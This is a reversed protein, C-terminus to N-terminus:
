SFVGELRQFIIAPNRRGEASGGAYGIAPGIRVGTGMGMFCKERMIVERKVTCGRRPYPEWFSGEDSSYFSKPVVETSYGLLCRETWM